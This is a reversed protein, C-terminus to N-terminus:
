TSLRANDKIAAIVEGFAEARGKHLNGLGPQDRQEEDTAKSTRLLELLAEVAEATMGM